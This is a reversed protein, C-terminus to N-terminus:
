DLPVLQVQLALLVVRAKHGLQDLLDLVELQGKCEQPVVLDQHVQLGQIELLVLKVLLGQPGRRDLQVEQVQPEMLDGQDQPELRVLHEQQERNVVQALQEQLVLQEQLALLVLRDLLEVLALPAVQGMEVRHAQHVQHVQLDKVVQLVKSDLHM